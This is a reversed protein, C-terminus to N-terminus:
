KFKMVKNKVNKTVKEIRKILEINFIMPLM